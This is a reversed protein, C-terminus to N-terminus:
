GGGRRAITFYLNVFVAVSSAIALQDRLTYWFSRPVLVVDGPSLLIGSGSDLLEKLNLRRRQQSVASILVLRSMDAQETPGGAASLLEWIDPHTSLRYAGPSRVQGWVYYKFAPPQALPPVAVESDAQLYSTVAFWNLVLLWFSRCNARLACGAQHRLPRQCDVSSEQSSNNM